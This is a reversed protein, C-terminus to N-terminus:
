SINELPFKYSTKEYRTKEIGCITKDQAAHQIHVVIM